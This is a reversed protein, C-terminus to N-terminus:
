SRSAPPDAAHRIEGDPSAAAIALRALARPDRRWGAALAGLAVLLEPSKAPLKERGFLTRGGATLQLLTELAAPARTYGLSRVALARLDGPLARDTARNVLLPVAADPCGQLAVAISLALRLTRPDQDRLGAVLAEDRQDPRKLQLKVAQWRV